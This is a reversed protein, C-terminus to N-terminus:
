QIFLVTIKVKKGGSGLETEDALGFVDDGMELGVYEPEAPIPETRMAEVADSRNFRNDEDVRLNVTPRNQATSKSKKRQSRGDEDFDRVIIAKRGGQQTNVIPKTRKHM